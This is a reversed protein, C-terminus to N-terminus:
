YAAARQASLPTRSDGRMSDSRASCASNKQSGPRSSSEGLTSRAVSKESRTLFRHSCFYLAHHLSTVDDEGARSSGDLQVLSMSEFANNKLKEIRFVLLSLLSCIISLTVLLQHTYLVRPVLNLITGHYQGVKFHEKVSSYSNGFDSLHLNIYYLGRM